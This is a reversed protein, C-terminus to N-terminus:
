LSIILTGCIFVGLVMLVMPLVGDSNEGESNGANISQSLPLPRYPVSIIDEQKGSEEWKLFVIESIKEAVYLDNQRYISNLGDVSYKDNTRDLHAYFLSARRAYWLPFFNNFDIRSNLSILFNISEMTLDSDIWSLLKDDENKRERAMIDLAQSGARTGAQWVDLLSAHQSFVFYSPFILFILLILLRKM